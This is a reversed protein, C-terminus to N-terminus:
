LGKQTKLATGQYTAVVGEVFVVKIEKSGEAWTMTTGLPEKSEKTPEGLLAKVEMHSMGAQIRLFNDSTLRSGGSGGRGGSSSNYNPTTSGGGQDNMYVFGFVAVLAIVGAVIWALPM